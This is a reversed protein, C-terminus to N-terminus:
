TKTIQNWYDEWRFTDDCNGCKYADRVVEKFAQLILDIQKKRTLHPHKLDWILQKARETPNM